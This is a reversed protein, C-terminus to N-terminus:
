LKIFKYKWQLYALAVIGVGVLLQKKSFGGYLTDEEILDPEPAVGAVLMKIQATKGHSFPKFGGVGGIRPIPWIVDKPSIRDGCMFWKSRLGADNTYRKQCPNSRREWLGM